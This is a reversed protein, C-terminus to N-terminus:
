ALSTVCSYGLDAKLEFSRSSRDGQSQDESDHPM